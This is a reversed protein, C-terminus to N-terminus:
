LHLKKEWLAALEWVEDELPGELPHLIQIDKDGLSLHKPANKCAYRDLKVPNEKKTSNLPHSNNKKDSELTQTDHEQSKNWREAHRQRTLNKKALRRIKKEAERQQKPLHRKHKSSTRGTPQETVIADNPHSLSNLKPPPLPGKRPRDHNSLEKLQKHHPSPIKSINKKTLFDRPPLITTKETIKNACAGKLCCISAQIFIIPFVAPVFIRTSSTTSPFKNM